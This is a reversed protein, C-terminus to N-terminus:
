EEVVGTFSTVCEWLERAPSLSRGNRRQRTKKGRGDGTAFRIKEWIRWLDTKCGSSCCTSINQQPAQQREWMSRGLKRVSRWSGLPEEPRASTKGDDRLASYRLLLSTGRCVLM